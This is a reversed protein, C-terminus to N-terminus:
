GEACMLRAIILGFFNGYYTKNCLLKKVDDNSINGKFKMYYEPFAYRQKDFLENKIPRHCYLIKRIEEDTLDGESLRDFDASIYMSTLTILLKNSTFYSSLKSDRVLKKVLEIGIPVKRRSDM